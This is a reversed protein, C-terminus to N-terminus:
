SRIQKYMAIIIYILTIIVLIASLFIIFVINPYKVIWASFVGIINTLITVLLSRILGKLTNLHNEM